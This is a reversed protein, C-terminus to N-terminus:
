WRLLNRSDRWDPLYEDLLAKFRPGHGRELFHCLEHVVVYELCRPPYLALRTNICVRGTDPQCSGWRSRMSRYALTTAHVGIVPEWKRVLAETGAQVVIKWERLEEPTAEEAKVQPSDLLAARSRVIWDSKSAIFREIDARPMTMPATALVRGDPPLIRVNLNRVRKRTVIVEVGDADFVMM